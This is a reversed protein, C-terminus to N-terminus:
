VYKKEKILNKAENHKSEDLEIGVIKKLNKFEETAYVLVNGKGSGLDYFTKGNTDYNSLFHLLGEKKLEGYTFNYKLKGGYHEYSVKYRGM